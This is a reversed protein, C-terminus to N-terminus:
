LAIYCAAILVAVRISGIYSFSQSVAGCVVLCSHHDCRWDCPVLCPPCPASCPKKCKRHSCQQRCMAQCTTTSCNHDVSCLSSCTHQCHLPKGCPHSSHNKRLARHELNLLQCDGCRSKCPKGCCGMSESCPATCPVESPDASCEMNAEHECHTLKARIMARCQIKEPSDLEHSCHNTSLWYSGWSWQNQSM